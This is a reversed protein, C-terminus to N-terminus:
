VFAKSPPTCVALLILAVFPVALYALAWRNRV